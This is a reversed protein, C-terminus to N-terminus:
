SGYQSLVENWRKGGNAVDRAKVLEYLRDGEEQRLERSATLHKLHRIWDKPRSATRGCGFEKRLSEYSPLASAIWPIGSASYELLKIESKAHNFPTDRLPALGIDMQLLNPYDQPDCAPITKVLHEPVGAENAFSPSSDHHGGHLYSVHTTTTQTTTLIGRLQQLDGSRHATSGVWGVVVDENVTHDHKKFANTDVTNPLLLVNKNWKSMKDYLFPTSTTVLSSAAIVERYYNTNEQKNHKPHSAKYAMNNPDLGWYWDDVDNIITQGVAKAKNIHGGLGDHMLRQMIIVDVDHRTGDDSVVKFETYYWVLTGVFVEVNFHPLYQGLRVWGAGGWHEEGDPSKLPHIRDGSVIGVRM